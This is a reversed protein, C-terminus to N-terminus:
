ARRTGSGSPRRVASVLFSTLHDLDPRGPQTEGWVHSQLVGVLLVAALRSDRTTDTSGLEALTPGLLGALASGVSGAEPHSGTRGLINRAAAALEPKAAQSMLADIGARLREEADDVDAMKHEVYSTVRQGGDEAVAEVFEGKSGFYRYFAEISVGAAKVIDGVRPNAGSGFLDRGVEILREVEVQAASKRRELSRQVAAEAKSM